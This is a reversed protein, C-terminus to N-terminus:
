AARKCIKRVSPVPPQACGSLRIEGGGLCQIGATHCCLGQQVVVARVSCWRVVSAGLLNHLTVTAAISSFPKSFHNATFIRSARQIHRTAVTQMCGIAPHACGLLTNCSACTLELPAQVCCFCVVFNRFPCALQQLLWAVMVGCAFFSSTQQFASDIVLSMSRQPCHLCSVRITQRNSILLQFCWAVRQANHVRTTYAPQAPAVAVHM